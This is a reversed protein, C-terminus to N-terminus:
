IKKVLLSPLLYLYSSDKPNFFIKQKGLAIRNIVNIFSTFSKTSQLSPFFLAKKVNPSPGFIPGWFRLRFIVPILM